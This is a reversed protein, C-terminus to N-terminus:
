EKKDNIYDVQEFHGGKHRLFMTLVSNPCYFARPKRSGKSALKTQGGKFNSAPQEDERVLTVDTFQQDDRLNRIASIISDQFDNYWELSVLM